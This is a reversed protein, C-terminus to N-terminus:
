IDVRFMMCMICLVSRQQEVSQLRSVASANDGRTQALAPWTVGRQSSGSVRWAALLLRVGERDSLTVLLRSGDTSVSWDHWRPSALHQPKVRYGCCCGQRFGRRKLWKTHRDTSPDSGLPRGSFFCFTVSGGMPIIYATFVLSTSELLTMHLSQKGYAWSLFNSFFKLMKLM